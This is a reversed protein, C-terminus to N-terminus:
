RCQKKPLPPTGNGSPDVRESDLKRKNLPLNKEPISPDSNPNAVDGFPATFNSFNTKSPPAQQHHHYYQSYPCHSPPHYSHYGDYSQAACCHFCSPGNMSAAAANCHGYTVYTVNTYVNNVVSPSNGHCDCSQDPSGGFYNHRDEGCCSCEPAGDKPKQPDSSDNQSNRDSAKKEDEGKGEPEQKLNVVVSLNEDFLSPSIPPPACLIDPHAPSRNSWDRDPTSVYELTDSDSSSQRTVVHEGPGSHYGSATDYGSVIGDEADVSPASLRKGLERIVGDRIQSSRRRNRCPARPTTYAERQGVAPLPPTHRGNEEPDSQVATPDYESPYETEYLTESADGATVGRGGFVESDRWTGGPITNRTRRKRGARRGRPRTRTHGREEGDEESDSSSSSSSSTSPPTHHSGRRERDRQEEEEWCIERKVQVSLFSNNTKKKFSTLFNALNPHVVIIAPQKKDSVLIVKQHLLATLEPDEEESESSALDTFRYTSSM